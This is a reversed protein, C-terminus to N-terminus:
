RFMEKVIKRACGYHLFYMKQAEGERKRFVTLSNSLWGGRIRKGCLSCTTMADQAEKSIIM